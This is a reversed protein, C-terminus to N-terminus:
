VNKNPYMYLFPGYITMKDAYDICKQKSVFNKPGGKFQTMDSVTKYHVMKCLFELIGKLSLNLM